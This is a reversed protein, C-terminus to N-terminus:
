RKFRPFRHRRRSRVRPAQRPSGPKYKHDYRRKRHASVSGKFTSALSM